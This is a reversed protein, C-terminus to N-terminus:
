EASGVGFAVFKRLPENEVVTNKANPSLCVASNYNSPRALVRADFLMPLVVSWHYFIVCHDNIIMLMMM